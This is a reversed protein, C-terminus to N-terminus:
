HVSSAINLLCSFHGAKSIILYICVSILDSNAKRNAFIFTLVGMVTYSVDLILSKQSDFPVSYSNGM